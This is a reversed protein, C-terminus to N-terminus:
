LQKSDVELVDVVARVEEGQGALDVIVHWEGKHPPVFSLVLDNKSEVASQCRKAARYKYYNLPDLIRINAIDSLSVRIAKGPGAQVRYHLYNV